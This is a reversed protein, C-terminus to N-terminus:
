LKTDPKIDVIKIHKGIIEAIMKTLKSSADGEAIIGITDLINSVPIHVKTKESYLVKCIAQVLYAHLADKEADTLGTFDIEVYKTM